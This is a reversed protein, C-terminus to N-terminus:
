HGSGRGFPPVALVDNRAGRLVAEAVSGLFINAAGSRGRTGVVVLDVQEEEALSLIEGAATGHRRRLRLDAADLGTSGAFSQLHHLAEARADELYAQRAVGPIAPSAALDLAPAEFVHLLALSCGGCIGLTLLAQAAAESTESLDTAILARRYAGVPPANAMLVPCTVARLVREATTGVFVDRLVQRRHPGIVLLGPAKAAVARAIGEFSDALIVEAECPIGDTQRVTQVLDALLREAEMREVAVIREPQDDDVVHVLTLAAGSQRALLTARRLARDSRESFDTAVMLTKVPTRRSQRV